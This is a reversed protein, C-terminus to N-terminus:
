IGRWEDNGEALGLHTDAGNRLQDLVGSRQSSTGYTPFEAGGTETMM